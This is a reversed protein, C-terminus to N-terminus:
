IPQAGRARAVMNSRRLRTPSPPDDGTAPNEVPIGTETAAQNYSRMEALKNRRDRRHRGAVRGHPRACASGRLGGGRTPRRCRGGPGSSRSVTPPRSHVLDHQQAVRDLQAVAGPPPGRAPAVTRRRARAAIPAYLDHHHRSVVVVVQDVGPRAGGTPAPREPPAADGHLRPRHGLQDGPHPSSPDARRDPRTTEGQRRRSARGNGRGCRVTRVKSRRATAV